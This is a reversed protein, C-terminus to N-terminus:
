AGEEAEEEEVQGESIFNTMKSEEASMRERVRRRRQQKIQQKKNIIKKTKRGKTERGTRTAKMDFHFSISDGHRQMRM